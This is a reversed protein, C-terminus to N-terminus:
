NFPYLSYKITKFVTYLGIKTIEPCAKRLTILLEQLKEPNEIEVGIEYNWSGITKILWTINQNHQCLSLLKKYKEQESNNVKITLTYYNIGLRKPNILTYYGTIIKKQQLKKIRSRITSHPQKLKLAIDIIKIRANQSLIHLLKKDIEDLYIDELDGGFYHSLELDKTKLIYNRPFHNLSIRTVSEYDHISASFRNIIQNFIENFKIPNKALIGIIYDHNGGVNSFYTVNQLNNIYDVFEKKQEEDKYIFNLYLGFDIYGIKHFNIYALYSKIIGQKELRSIRYQVMDPGVGIKRAIKMNQQRADRDLEILLRRDKQDIKLPM